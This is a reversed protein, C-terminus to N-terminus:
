LKGRVGVFLQTGGNAYVYKPTVNDSQYTGVANTYDQNFLNQVQGFLNLHKNIQYDATINTVIYQGIQAGKQNAKDYEKGIYRTDLGIHVKNLSYNDIMIGAKQEPRRALWKKDKDKATQSTYSLNIQSQIADIYRIYSAEIGRYKSKGLTNKYTYLTNDYRIENDIDAHFYTLKLGYLGLTMDYSEKSEPVLATGTTYTIEALSPARYATGYNGSLYIEKTLFGKVGFNGTTKDKYQDYQDARISESIILNQAFLQNTNNLGFGLNDYNNQPNSRNILYSKDLFINAFQNNFYNIKSKAGLKAFRGSSYNTITSNKQAYIEPAFIGFQGSYSAQQINSQYNSPSNINPNNSYDINTSANSKKVFLQIRQHKAPNIGIKFSMDTQSYPDSEYGDVSHKYEKVASFGNTSIDSLNFVFDIKKNGAGLTTTLKHYGNSGATISASAKKGGKKTIINIVGAMAGSGWAGSQAGQIIEIRKVDDLSINEIHAGGVSMPDNLVVGDQLFLIRKSSQGRMFISTSKGLGGSNSISIGPVNQLAQALTHYQNKEIDAATIVTTDATVSHQTQPTNNATVVVQSLQTAEEAFATSAALTALIALSLQTKKM